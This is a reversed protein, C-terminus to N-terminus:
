EHGPVESSVGVLMISEVVGLGGPVHSIIRATLAVVFVALVHPYSVVASDPLCMFLVAGALALDALSLGIQAFTTTPSPVKLVFGFLQNGPFITVRNGRRSTM